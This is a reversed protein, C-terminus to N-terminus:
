LWYNTSKLRPIKLIQIQIKEDNDGGLSVPTARYNIGKDGSNSIEGRSILKGALILKGIYTKRLM